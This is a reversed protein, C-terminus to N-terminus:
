IEGFGALFLAQIAEFAASEDVGEVELLVSAGSAAGLSMLDFIRKMNASKGQYSLRITSVYRSACEVLQSCVRTHLGLPNKLVLDASQM